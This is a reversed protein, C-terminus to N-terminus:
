TEFSSYTYSTRQEPTTADGVELVEKVRNPSDFLTTTAVGNPDMVSPPPQPRRLCFEDYRRDARIRAFTLPPLNGRAPDYTFSM